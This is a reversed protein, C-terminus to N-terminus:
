WCSNGMQLAVVPQSSSGLASVSCTVMPSGFVTNRSIAMVFQIYYSARFFLVSCTCCSEVKLHFCCVQVLGLLRKVCLRVTSSAGVVENNRGWDVGIAEHLTGRARSISCSLAYAQIILLDECFALVRWFHITTSMLIESFHPGSVCHYFVRWFTPFYIQSWVSNQPLLSTHDRCM